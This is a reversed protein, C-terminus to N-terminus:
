YLMIVMSIFVSPLLFLSICVVTFFIQPHKLILFSFVQTTGLSSLFPLFYQPILIITIIKYSYYVLVSIVIVSHKNQFCLTTHLNYYILNWSANTQKTQRIKLYWKNKVKYKTVTRLWEESHCILASTQWPKMKAMVALGSYVPYRSPKILHSDNHNQSRVFDTLLICLEPYSAELFCAKM